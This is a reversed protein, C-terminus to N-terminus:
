WYNDMKVNGVFVICHILMECLNSFEVGVLVIEPIEQFKDILYVRFLTM